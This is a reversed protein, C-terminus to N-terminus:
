PAVVVVAGPAAVQDVVVGVGDGEGEAAAVAQETCVGEPALQVELLELLRAGGPRPEIRQVVPALEEAAERAGGARGGARGPGEGAEAQAEAELATGLEAAPELREDGTGFQRRM